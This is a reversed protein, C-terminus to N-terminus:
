SSQQGAPTVGTTRALILTGPNKPIDIKPFSTAVASMVLTARAETVTAIKPIDNKSIQKAGAPM